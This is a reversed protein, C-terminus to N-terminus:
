LFTFARNPQIVTEKTYENRYFIQEGEKLLHINTSNM